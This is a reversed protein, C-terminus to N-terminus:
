GEGDKTKNFAGWPRWNHILRAQRARREPTWGSAM